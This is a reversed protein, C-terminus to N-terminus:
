VLWGADNLSKYYSRSVPAEIGGALTLTARGDAKAVRTVAAKAVWWSRHTRAGPTAALEAIADSLRMLILASQGGDLHVRLYHDEAELAVLAQGRLPLPLREAFRARAVAAEDPKDAPVPMAGRDVAYTIATLIACIMLVLGFMIASARLGPAPLGFVLSRAVAVVFTLPLAILLAVLAGELWPRDGLRGWRSVAVTAGVGLLAGAEFLVLWYFFRPVIGIAATGLPALVAMVPAAVTAVLFGRAHNPKRGAMRSAHVAGDTAERM